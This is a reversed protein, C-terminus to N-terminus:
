ELRKFTFASLQFNAQSFLGNNNLSTNASELDPAIIIM